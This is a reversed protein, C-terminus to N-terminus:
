AKKNSKKVPKDVAKPVELKLSLPYDKQSPKQGATENAWIKKAALFLDWKDEVETFKYANKNRKYGIQLIALKADHETAHKYASIQIEYEPWISQSTKLDIIWVQGEIECILDITGAYGESENIVTHETHLIKPNNAKYWEVFSLIAEYEEATLEAMEEEADTYKDDIKVEEGKTLDEIAKHVRSGKNGAAEKIAQSEDWGTNALWKYFGLSKPYFGAIWSVSPLYRYEPLGTEPNKSEIAYWRDDSTTIRLVGERVERIEKKM